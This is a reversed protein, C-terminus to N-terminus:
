WKSGMQKTPAPGPVPNATQFRYTELHSGANAFCYVYEASFTNNALGFAGVTPFENAGLNWTNPHHVKSDEVILSQTVNRIMDFYGGNIAAYVM